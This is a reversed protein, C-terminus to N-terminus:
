INNKSKINIDEVIKNVEIQLAQYDTGEKRLINNPSLQDFYYQYQSILANAAADREPM